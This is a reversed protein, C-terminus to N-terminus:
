EDTPDNSEVLRKWSSIILNWEKYAVNIHM